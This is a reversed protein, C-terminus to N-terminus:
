KYITRYLNCPSGPAPHSYLYDNSSIQYGQVPVSDSRTRGEGTRLPCIVDYRCQPQITSFYAVVVVVTWWTWLGLNRWRSSSKKMSSVDRRDFSLRLGQSLDNSKDDPITNAYCRTWTQSFFHCDATVTRRHAYANETVTVIRLPRYM